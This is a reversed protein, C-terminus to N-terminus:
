PHEYPSHSHRAPSVASLMAIFLSFQTGCVMVNDTKSGFPMLYCCVMCYIFCVILGIVLQELSGPQVFVLLGVLTLKQLLYEIVEFYFVTGRYSETLSWLYGEVDLEDEDRPGVPEGLLKQQTLHQSWLHADYVHRIIRERRRIELLPARSRWLLLAIICPVGFPWVCVMAIAFPRVAIYAAGATNISYDAILYTGYDADFQYDQFFRFCIQTVGPYCLFVVLIGGNFLLYGIPGDKNRRLAARGAILLAGVVALPLLTRFFLASLFNYRFLCDIPVLTVFDFNFVSLYALVEKFAPPWTLRFVGALGQLVQQHATLIKIKTLAGSLIRQALVKSPERYARKQAGREKELSSGAEVRQRRARRWRRRCCFIVCPAVICFIVILPLADAFSLSAQAGSCSICEGTKSKRFGDDCVACLPGTNGPSCYTSTNIGGRCVAASQCTEIATSHSGIRWMGASLNLLAPTTAEACLAGKPCLVCTADAEMYKGAPCGCQSPSTAGLPGVADDQPCARCITEQGAPDPKYMGATCLGCIVNGTADGRKEAGAPCICTFGAGKDVGNTYAPM